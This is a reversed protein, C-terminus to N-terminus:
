RINVAERFEGILAAPLPEERGEGSAEVVLVHPM